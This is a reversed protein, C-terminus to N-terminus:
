ATSPPPSYERRWDIELPLSDKSNGVTKHNLEDLARQASEKDCFEVTCSGKSKRSNKFYNIRVSVVPGYEQVLDTVQLVDYSRPLNSVFLSKNVLSAAAEAEESTSACYGRVGSWGARSWGPRTTAISKGRPLLRRFSWM